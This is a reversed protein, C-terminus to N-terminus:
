CVHSAAAPVATNTACDDDGASDRHNGYNDCIVFIFLLVRCVLLADLAHLDLAVFVWFLLCVFAFLGVGYM